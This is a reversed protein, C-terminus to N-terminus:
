ADRSTHLQKVKVHVPYSVVDDVETLGKSHALFPQVDEDKSPQRHAGLYPVHEGEILGTRHEM